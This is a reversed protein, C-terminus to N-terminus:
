DEGDKTKEYGAVCEKYYDDMQKMTTKKWNTFTTPNHYGNFNWRIRVDLSVSGDENFTPRMPIVMIEKNKRAVRYWRDAFAFQKDDWRWEEQVRERNYINIGVNTWWCLSEDDISELLYRPWGENQEIKHLWSLYWKSPPASVLSVLDGPLADKRSSDAIWHDRGLTPFQLINGLIMIRARYKSM